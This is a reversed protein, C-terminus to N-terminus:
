KPRIWPPQRRNAEDWLRFECRRRLWDPDFKDPRDLMDGAYTLHEAISYVVVGDAMKRYRLAKGDFPDTPLKGLLKADVVEQLSAPWRGNKLRFREVGLGATACELLVHNHLVDRTPLEMGKKKILLTALEPADGGLVLAHRKIQLESPALKAFEVADNYWRLMWAHDYKIKDVLQPFRGAVGKATGGPGFLQNEGIDITRAEANLMFLHM